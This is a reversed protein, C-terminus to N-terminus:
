GIKDPDGFSYSGLVVAKGLRVLEPYLALSHVFDFGGGGGCLLVTRVSPDALRRLFAPLLLSASEATMRKVMAVPPWGPGTAARTLRIGTRGGGALPSPLQLRNGVALWPSWPGAM